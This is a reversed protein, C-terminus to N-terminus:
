SSEFALSSSDFSSCSVTGNFISKLLNKYSDVGTIQDSTLLNHVKINPDVVEGVKESDNHAFVQPYRCDPSVVENGITPCYRKQGCKVFYAQGAVTCAHWKASQVSEQHRAQLFVISIHDCINPVCCCSVYRARSQLSQVSLCANHASVM